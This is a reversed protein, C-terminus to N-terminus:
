LKGLESNLRSYAGESSGSSEEYLDTNKVIFNKQMQNFQALM